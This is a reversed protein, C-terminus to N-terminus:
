FDPHPALRKSTCTVAERILAMECWSPPCLLGPSRSLSVVELCCHLSVRSLVETVMPMLSTPFAAESNAFVALLDEMSLM